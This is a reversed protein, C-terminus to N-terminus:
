HVLALPARTFHLFKKVLSPVPSCLEAVLQEQTFFVTNYVEGMTNETSGDSLMVDIDDPIECYARLEEM